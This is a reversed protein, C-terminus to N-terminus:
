ATPAASRSPSSAVAPETSRSWGRRPHRLTREDAEVPIAKAVAERAGSPAVVVADPYRRKWARIDLRHYPNPVVLFRPRGLTEIRGMGEERLPMASWIACGGGELRVATMRRPFKGLPMAISGQVTLIGDAVEEVAGHKLVVWEDNLRAM